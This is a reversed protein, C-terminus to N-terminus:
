GQWQYNLEASDGVPPSSQDSPVRNQSPSQGVVGVPYVQGSDSVSVVPETPGAAAPQAVVTIPLFKANLEILSVLQSADAQTQLRLHLQDGSIRQVNAHDILELKELWSVIAAYDAYSNVGAVRMTVGGFSNGAAAVAYRGALEEAVMAVGQEIFVAGTVAAARRDATEEASVYRWEGTAQGTPDLAVRGVLLDEVDYRGSAERVAPADLQWAQDVSLAATDALDFLPLKFPVGRRSFERTVQALLEADTDRTIFRRGSDDELVLWLLVLPRNATWLPAGASTVLGTIYSDDFLFRASLGSESSSDRTYSYQQVHKRAGGLAAKVEPYRLVGASGSVKVLVEGMATQSASALSASDRGAVPVTATYLDPVTAAYGICATMVSLTFVLVRTISNGV